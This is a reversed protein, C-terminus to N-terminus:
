RKEYLVMVVQRIPVKDYHRPKHTGTIRIALAGTLTEWALSNGPCVFPGETKSLLKKPWLSM